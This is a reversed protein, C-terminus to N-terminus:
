STHDEPVEWFLTQAPLIHESKTIDDNPYGALYNRMGNKVITLAPLEGIYGIMPLQEKWVDLVGTQFLESRTDEDPEVAIADIANWITWIWHDAAPEEGNPDGTDNRWLGWAGAWPRDTTTGDFITPTVIPMVTRDGGWCTAVVQNSEYHETYLSREVYKYQTKIGVEGFYSVLLQIGDEDTSGTEATGEITLSITEGSGDKYTRYGEADKESYGAEDLLTSAEDPDYDIYAYAQDAYFSPSMSLPSYQRSTGMGNYILENIEDRNAALSFAKRVSVDGLFERLRTDVCANNPTFCFHSASVGTMVAFDGSEESEKFLTYNGLDVGRSQCDIEGNVIWMNFVDATEYLRHTVKDIYPLQNGEADVQWFYPNRELIFLENDLTNTPMWPNITPRETDMYWDDHYDYLSAWGDQGAETAMAALTDADTFDIHFKSMYDGHRFPQNQHGIVKYHFLPYPDQFTFIVTYDDPASWQSLVLPSGTSFQSPPTSTLDTNQLQYQWYWIFDASTFNSGDSWKTGKRLNFTWESADDNISWSEALSARVSLDLGYWTLNNNNLKSPGNADSVGSFGRRWTGGYVGIADPVEQIDPNEPLREEVSPLDGSAVLEALSPAESYVSTATTSEPATTAEPAATAETATTATAEAATTPAPTSTAQSCAAAVTAAATLATVRVFERRTVKQM